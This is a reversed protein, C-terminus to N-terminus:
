LPLSKSALAREVVAHTLKRKKSYNIEGFKDVLKCVELFDEKSNLNEMLELIKLGLAVHKKKLFVYPQLLRMVRNAEASGVITYDSMGTKRHRIYGSGLQEKLWNLIEVNNSKQYFAISARIEFGFKYDSRPVIQFFISGDGDLFGAIYALITPEIFRM